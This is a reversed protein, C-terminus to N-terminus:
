IMMDETVSVVGARGVGVMLTGLDGRDGLCLRGESLVGTEAVRGDSSGFLGATPCRSTILCSSSTFVGMVGGVAYVSKRLAREGAAEM